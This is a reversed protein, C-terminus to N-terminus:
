FSDSKRKVSICCRSSPGWNFKCRFFTGFCFDIPGSCVSLSHFYRFIDVFPERALRVSSSWPQFRVSFHVLSHRPGREIHHAAIDIHIPDETTNPVRIATATATTLTARAPKLLTVEFFYTSGTRKYIEYLRHYCLFFCVLRWHKLHSVIYSFRADVYPCRAWTNQERM